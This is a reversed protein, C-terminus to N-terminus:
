KKESKSKQNVNNGSKGYELLLKQFGRDLKDFNFDIGLITLTKPSKRLDVEIDVTEPLPFDEYNQIVYDTNNDAMFEDLENQDSVTEDANFPIFESNKDYPEFYRLYIASNKWEKAPIYDKLKERPNKFIEYVYEALNPNQVLSIGTLRFYGQNKGYVVNTISTIKYPLKYLKGDINIITVGRLTNEVKSM